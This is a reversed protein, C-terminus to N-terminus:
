YRIRPFLFSPNLMYLIYSDFYTNVSGRSWMCGWIVCKSTMITYSTVGAQDVSMTYDSLHSVYKLWNSLLM